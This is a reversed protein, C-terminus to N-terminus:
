NGVGTIDWFVRSDLEDGGIAASGAEYSPGNVDEEDNPYIYRRPVPLESVPPRSMIAPEDLLKWSAWAEFGRGYLSIYKQGGISKKWNAADYAVSGQAIYAAAEAAGIGWEAMSLTIGMNYYTEADAGIFGRAAAEAVLFAVESSTMLKGELDPEHWPQGIHTHTAYSSGEGYTGGKYPEPALNDAMFIPTRPDNLPVIFDVFTNALVFDNRGSQVISVWVPHTNPPASEFPFVMNDANTMMVGGEYAEEAKTKAMTADYDAIRLAMRLKISNALTIWSDVDGGYFLDADGFGVGGKGLTEIAADLRDFLDMYVDADDDYAPVLNDLGQLAESYPIDAFVDVLIHFVFVDFIELQAMQNEFQNEGILTENLMEARAATTNALVDYYLNQWFNGGIDRNALDYNTEDTYLTENWQQAYLRFINYNVSTSQM